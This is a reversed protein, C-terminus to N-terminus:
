TLQLTGRPKSMPRKMMTARKKEKSLEQIKVKKTSGKKKRKKIKKKEKNKENTLPNISVKMEDEMASEFILLNSNDDNCPVFGLFPALRSKMLPVYEIQKKQFENAGAPVEFMMMQRNLYDWEAWGIMEVHLRGFSFTFLSFLLSTTLFLCLIYGVVRLIM